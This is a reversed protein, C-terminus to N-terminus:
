VAIKAPVKRLDDGIHSRGVKNEHNHSAVHATDAYVRIVSIKGELNFKVTYVFEHVYDKGAKTTGTMRVEVAAWESEGGGIVRIVEKSLNKEGDIAANTREFERRFDAKGLNHGARQHDQGTITVDVDPAVHTDFADLGSSSFRYQFIASIAAPTPFPTTRPPPTPAPPPM